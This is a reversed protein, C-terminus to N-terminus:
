HENQEHQTWTTINRKIKEMPKFNELMIVSCYMNLIMVKEGIFCHIQSTIKMAFIFLFLFIWNYLSVM